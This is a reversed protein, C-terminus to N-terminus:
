WVAVYLWKSGGEEVSEGGGDGIDVVRVVLRSNHRKPGDV